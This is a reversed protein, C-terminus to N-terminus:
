DIRSEEDRGNYWWDTVGWQRHVIHMGIMTVFIHKRAVQDDLWPVEAYSSPFKRRGLILMGWFRSLNETFMMTDFESSSWRFTMQVWIISMTLEFLPATYNGRWATHSEGALDLNEVIYSNTILPTMCSIRDVDCRWSYVYPISRAQYILEHKIFHIGFDRLFTITEFSTNSRDKSVDKHRIENVTQLHSDEICTSPWTRNMELATNWM